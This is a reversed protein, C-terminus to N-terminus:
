FAGRIYKFVKVVVVVALAAAGVTGVTTGADTLASTVATVDVAHSVTAGAILGGGVSLKALTSKAAQQLKQFTM